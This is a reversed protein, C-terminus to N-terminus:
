NDTTRQGDYFADTVLGYRAVRLGFLWDFWDFWHFRNRATEGLRRKATETGFLGGGACGILDILGIL